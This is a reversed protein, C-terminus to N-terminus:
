QNPLHTDWAYGVPNTPHKGYRGFVEKKKEENRNIAKYREEYTTEDNPFYFPHVKGNKDVYETSVKIASATAVLAFLAFTKM